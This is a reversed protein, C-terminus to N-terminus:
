ENARNCRPFTIEYSFMQRDTTLELGAWNLDRAIERGGDLRWHADNRAASPSITFGIGAAPSEFTASFPLSQWAPINEGEQVREGIRLRSFPRGAVENLMILDGNRRLSRADVTILLKEAAVEYTVRCDGQGSDCTMSSVMHLMGFLSNRARLLFQQQDPRQMYTRAIKELAASYFKPMRIGLLQWRVIRDLRFVKEFLNGKLSKASVLTPFYTQRSTKWVPLGFGASEGAYFEGQYCLFLGKAMGATKGHDQSPDHVLSLQDSLQLKRIM